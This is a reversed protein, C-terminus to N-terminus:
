ASGSLPAMRRGPARVSAKQHSYATHLICFASIMSLQQCSQSCSLQQALMTLQRDGLGERPPLRMDHLRRIGQM